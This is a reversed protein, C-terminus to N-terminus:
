QFFIHLFESIDYYCYYLTFGKEFLIVDIKPHPAKFRKSTLSIHSEDEMFHFYHHLNNMSEVRQCDEGYQLLYFPMDTPLRIPDNHQGDNRCCFHIKTQTSDSEGSPLAGNTYSGRYVRKHIWQIFGSQFGKPCEIGLRYICYQGPMWDFDNTPTDNVKMCFHQEVGQHDERLGGQILCM